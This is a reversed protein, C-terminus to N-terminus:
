CSPSLSQDGVYATSLYYCGLYARRAERNFFEGGTSDEPGNDHHSLHLGVRQSKAKWPKQDLGLDITM